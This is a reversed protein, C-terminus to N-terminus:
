EIPGASDLDDLTRAAIARLEDDSLESDDYVLGQGQEYVERRILVCETHGVVVPVVEGSEVARM